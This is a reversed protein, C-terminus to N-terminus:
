SQAIEHIAKVLKDLDKLSTYVHPTVRVGSINEWVTPSTHIKYRNFLLNSLKIPERNPLSFTAIACSFQPNLSTYLHFGPIDLCREIWYKKLFHLRKQKRETGLMEQFDIAQAIAMEAAYARTGLNEFKRIDDSQPEHHPLLPWHKQIKEKKMYLLGTGFPACLWKHLSTGAYDAGTDTLTFDLQAFSHAFDLVVEIGQNHAAQIIKKVPMIQGTWNIMHTLHLIKTQPSFLSTFKELIVSEDELPLELNVWKLQIGDRLARQKWAHVMNPYDQKSLIVEDGKQLNLGFIVTDLAETTNRQIAVEDPSAGLMAALRERIPERNYNLIRWMYFSPAENSLQLYRIEADQVSKPQPSVGGNNLNIVSSSVTYAQRILYWFDENQSLDTQLNFHELRHQIDPITAYNLSPLAMAGSYLTGQKIFYRRNM